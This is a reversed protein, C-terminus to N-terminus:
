KRLVDLSVRLVKLNSTWIIICIQQPRDLKFSFSESLTNKIVFFLFISYQKEILGLVFKKRDCDGKHSSSNFM